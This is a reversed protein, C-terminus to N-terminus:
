TTSSIFQYAMTQQFISSMKTSMFTTSKNIKLHSQQKISIDVVRLAEQTTENFIEILGNEYGIILLQYNTSYHFTSIVDGSLGDITTITQIEQTQVDYSFISNDATAYIKDNAYFIESINLYSFYGEWSQSYSFIAFFLLVVVLYKRSNKM